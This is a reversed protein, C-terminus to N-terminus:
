WNLREAYAAMERWQRAIDLYTQKTAYDRAREAEAEAVEAKRLYEEAKLGM